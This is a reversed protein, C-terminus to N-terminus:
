RGPSSWVWLRAGARVLHAGRTLCVCTYGRVNTHRHPSLGRDNQWARRLWGQGGPSGQSVAGTGEGEQQWEGVAAEQQESWRKQEQLTM